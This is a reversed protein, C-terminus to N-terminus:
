IEGSARMQAVLMRASGVFEDAQGLAYDAFETRADAPLARLDAVFRRTWDLRYFLVDIKNLGLDAITGEAKRRDNGALSAHPVIEGTLPDYDLYREPREREDGAGPDVYGLAPWKDM